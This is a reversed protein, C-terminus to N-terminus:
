SKKTSLDNIKAKTKGSGKHKNEMHKALNQFTRNCCPCVGAMIRKEIRKKQLTLKKNEKIKNQWLEQFGDSDRKLRQIELNKQFLEKQQKDRLEEETSKLYAQRHGNPCYFSERTDKFKRQLNSPIAFPVGCSYCTVLYMEVTQGYVLQERNQIIM